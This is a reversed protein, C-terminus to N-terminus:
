RRRRVSDDRVRYTFPADQILHERLDGKDGTNSSM